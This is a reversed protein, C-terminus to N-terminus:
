GFTDGPALSQLWSKVASPGGAEFARAAQAYLQGRQVWPSDARRQAAVNVAVTVTGILILALALWFSLFIRWYLSHMPTVRGSPTSIKIGGGAPCGPDLGSGPCVR